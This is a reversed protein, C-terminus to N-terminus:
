TYLIILGMIFCLLGLSEVLAFGLLATSTLEKRGEPYLALAICLCGFIIGIGIGAGVIGILAIGSGMKVFGSTVIGAASTLSSVLQLDSFNL